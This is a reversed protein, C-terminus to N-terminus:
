SDLLTLVCPIEHNHGHDWVNLGKIKLLSQTRSLLIVVGCSQFFATGYVIEFFNVAVILWVNMVVQMPSM